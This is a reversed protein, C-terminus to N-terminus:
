SRFARDVCHNARLKYREGFRRCYIGDSLTFENPDGHEGAETMVKRRLTQGHLGLVKAAEPISLWEAGAPQGELRDLRDRIDLLLNHLTELDATTANDPGEPRATM